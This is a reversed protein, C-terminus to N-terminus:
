ADKTIRFLAWRVDGAVPVCLRKGSSCDAFLHTGSNWLLAREFRALKPLWRKWSVVPAPALHTGWWEKKRRRLLAPLSWNWWKWGRFSGCDAM